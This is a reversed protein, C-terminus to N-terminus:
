RKRLIDQQIKEFDQKKLIKLTKDSGNINYDRRDEIGRIKSEVNRSRAQGEVFVIDEAMISDLKIPELTFFDVFKTTDSLRITLNDYEELIYGGNEAVYGIPATVITNDRIQIVISQSTINEYKIETEEFLSNAKMAENKSKEESIYKYRKIGFYGLSVIVLIIIFCIFIKMKKVLIYGWIIHIIDYQVLCLSTFGM